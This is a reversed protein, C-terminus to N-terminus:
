PGISRTSSGLSVRLVDPGATVTLGAVPVDAMAAFHATGAAYVYGLEVAGDVLRFDNTAACAPCTWRVTVIVPNYATAAELFEVVPVAHDCGPCAILPQRM